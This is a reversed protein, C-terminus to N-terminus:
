LSFKKYPYYRRYEEEFDLGKIRDKKGDKKYQKNQEDIYDLFATREEYSLRKKYKYYASKKGDPLADQKAIYARLEGADEKFFEEVAKLSAEEYRKDQYSTMTRADVILNYVKQSTALITGNRDM